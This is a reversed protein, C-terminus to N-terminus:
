GPLVDHLLQKLLFDIILLIEKARQAGRATVSDHGTVGGARVLVLDVQRGRWRTGLGSRESGWRALGSGRVGVRMSVRSMHAKVVMVVM